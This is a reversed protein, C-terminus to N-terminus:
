ENKLMGLSRFKKDLRRVIKLRKYKISEATEFKLREAIQRDGLRDGYFFALIRMESSGLRQLHYGITAFADLLLFSSNSTKSSLSLSDELRELCISKPYQILGHFYFELLKTLSRFYLEHDRDKPL